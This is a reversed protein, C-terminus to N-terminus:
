QSWETGPEVIAVQSDLAVRGIISSGEGETILIFRQHSGPPLNRIESELQQELVAIAQRDGAAALPLSQRVTDVSSIRGASGSIDYLKSRYFADALDMDRGVRADQATGLYNNILSYTILSGIVITVAATLAFGLVLISQLRWSSLRALIKKM